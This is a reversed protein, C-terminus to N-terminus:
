PDVEAARPQCLRSRSVGLRITLRIKALQFWSSAHSRWISPTFHTAYGTEWRRLAIGCRTYIMPSSAVRSDRDESHATTNLVM